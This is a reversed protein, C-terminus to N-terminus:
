VTLGCELMNRHRGGDGGGDDPFHVEIFWFLAATLQRRIKDHVCSVTAINQKM